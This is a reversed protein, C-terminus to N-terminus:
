SSKHFQCLKYISQFSLFLSISQSCATPNIIQEKHCPFEWKTPKEKHWVSAYTRDSHREHVANAGSDEEATMRRMAFHKRLKITAARQQCSGLRKVEYKSVFDSEKKREQSSSSLSIFYMRVVVRYYMLAPVNVDSKLKFPVGRQMM